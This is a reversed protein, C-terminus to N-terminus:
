RTVTVTTSGTVGSASASITVTGTRQGHVKGSGSVTAIRSDSTTWQFSKNVVQGQGDRFVATLQLDRGEKVSANAPTVTITSPPPPPTAVNVSAMGIVGDAQASIIAAGGQLATVRGSTNVSAVQPNSSSWTVPRGPLVTGNGDRAEASFTVNQGVSVSANPPSVLVSAVRATTVVVDAFGSKGEISAAIKAAGVRRATVNGSDSVSAIASDEAAWFATRQLLNGDADRAEAQLTFSSGVVITATSPVVVM